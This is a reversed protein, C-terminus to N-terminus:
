IVDFAVFGACMVDGLGVAHNKKGEGHHVPRNPAHSGSDAHLGLICEGQPSFSLIGTIAASAYAYPDVTYDASFKSALVVEPFNGAFPAPRRTPCLRSPEPVEARVGGLRHIGRLM